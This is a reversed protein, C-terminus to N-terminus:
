RCGLRAVRLEARAGRGAAIEQWVAYLREGDSAIESDGAEVGPRSLQAVSGAELAGNCVRGVRAVTARGAGETWSLALCHASSPALSPGMAPLAGTDIDEHTPSTGPRWRAIHIKWASRGRRQAFAVAVSDGLSLAFPTGVQSGRTSLITPASRGNGRVDFVRAEIGGPARRVFVAQEAGLAAIAPAEVEGQMEVGQWARVATGYLALGGGAPDPMSVLLHPGIGTAALTGSSCGAGQGDPRMRGVDGVGLVTRAVCGIRASGAVCTCTVSAVRGDSVAGLVPGQPRVEPGSQAFTAVAPATAAMTARDFARAYHFTQPDPWGRSRNAWPRQEAWSVVLGQSTAALRAGIGGRGETAVVGGPVHAACSQAQAREAISGVALLVSVSVAVRSYMM